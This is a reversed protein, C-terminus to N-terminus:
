GGIAILAARYGLGVGFLVALSLMAAILLFLPWDPQRPATRPQM